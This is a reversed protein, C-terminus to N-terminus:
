AAYFPRKTGVNRSLRDTCDELTLCDHVRSSHVSLKERFTPLLSRLIGFHHLHWQREETRLRSSARDYRSYFMDHSVTSYANLILTLTHAYTSFPAYCIFFLLNYLINQTVLSMLRINASSTVGCARCHLAVSM